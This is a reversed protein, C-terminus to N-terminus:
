ACECKTRRAFIANILLRKTVSARKNHQLLSPAAMCIRLQPVPQLNWEIKSDFQRLM